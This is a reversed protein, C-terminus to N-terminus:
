VSISSIHLALSFHEKELCLSSLCDPEESDCLSGTRSVCM